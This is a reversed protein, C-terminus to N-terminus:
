QQWGLGSPDNRYPELGFRKRDGFLYASLWPLRHGIAIPSMSIHELNPLPWLEADAAM